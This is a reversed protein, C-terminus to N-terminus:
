SYETMHHPTHLKFPQYLKGGGSYFNRFFEVYHLRLSHITPGFAGLALNLAHLLVAVIVGVVVSGMAGAVRNAVVALYVSSLGIAAIRLYSLVNGVLGILEIPAVVMGVKGLSAAMLVLAVILGAIAPTMFGAPLRDTLAGALLLLAILGLLRGGREFLHHRNKERFSDWVGIILGLLIHVVGIGIAMLLLDILHKPDARDFLIPHLGIVEGLTGFFEGFVFGFVIGWGSGILLVTVVDRLVGPKIRFRLYFFVALLVAGYGIDGLMLGFFIPLFIAMLSSPDVGQYRPVAYLNVLSQFPRALAPNSLSVPAHERLDPTLPLRHVVIAQGVHKHLAVELTSVDKEPAWGTLVFTTETQGVNALAEFTNQQDLLTDHASLLTATSNKAIDELEREVSAIEGSIGTMRRRVSAIVAEPTSGELEAPLRLRSVDERALLSSIPEAHREPVAILMACTESDIDGAGMTAEGGTLDAVQEQILQLADVHARNVILGLLVMDRGHSQQPMLPLLKRLTGEFRPLLELEAKLNERRTTLAQMKPTLAEVEMLLAALPRDDGAGGPHDMKDVDLAELLGKIHARQLKVQEQERMDAHDVVLAPLRLGAKEGLKDMQVCGLRGIVDIAAMLDAKLGIIELYAM